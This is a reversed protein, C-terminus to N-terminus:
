KSFREWNDVIEGLVHPAAKVAPEVVKPQVKDWLIEEMPKQTMDRGADDTAHGAASGAAKVSKVGKRIPKPVKGELPDGESDSSDHMGIARAIIHRANDVFNAAEEERAEGEAKEPAGTLTDTTGLQGAQPKQLGGTRTNVLALPAPPFLTDRAKESGIIIMLTGLILPILLDFIWAIFYM